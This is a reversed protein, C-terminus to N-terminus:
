SALKLDILIIAFYDLYYHLKQFFAIAVPNNSNTFFVVPFSFVARAESRMGKFM